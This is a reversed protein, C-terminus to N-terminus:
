RGCPVAPDAVPLFMVHVPAQGQLCKASKACWKQSMNGLNCARWQFSALGSLLSRLLVHANKLSPPPPHAHRWLAHM